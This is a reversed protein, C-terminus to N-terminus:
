TKKPSSKIIKPIIIKPNDITRKIVVMKNMGLNFNQSKGNIPLKNNIMKLTKGNGKTKSSNNLCPFILGISIRMKNIEITNIEVLKSSSPKNLNRALKTKDFTLDFWILKNKINYPSMDMRVIKVELSIMM